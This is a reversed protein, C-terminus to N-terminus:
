RVGKLHMVTDWVIIVSLFTGFSSYSRSLHLAHLFAAAVVEVYYRSQPATVAVLPEHGSHGIRRRLNLQVTGSTLYTAASQTSLVTGQHQRHDHAVLSRRSAMRPLM